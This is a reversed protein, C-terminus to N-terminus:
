LYHFIREIAFLLSVCVKPVAAQFNLGTIPTSGLSHFRALINVLGPKVASVQPTLTIKLSNKEYATYSSTRPAPPSVAPASNVLSSASAIDFLSGYTPQSPPPPSSSSAPPVPTPTSDFLGLIDDIASKQKAAAAVVTNNNGSLGLIVSGNQATPSTSTTAEDLDIM